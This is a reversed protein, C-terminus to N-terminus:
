KLYNSAFAGPPYSKTDLGCDEWLAEALNKRLDGKSDLEANAQESWWKGFSEFFCKALISSKNGGERKPIAISATYAHLLPVLADGLTVISHLDATDPTMEMKEAAHEAYFIDDRLQDIFAALKEGMTEIDDRHQKLQRAVKLQQTTIYAETLANSALVGLRQRLEPMDDALVGARIATRLIKDVECVASTDFLRAVRDTFPSGGHETVGPAVPTRKGEFLAAIKDAKSVSKPKRPM